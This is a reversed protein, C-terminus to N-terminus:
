VVIDSVANAMSLVYLLCLVYFIITATRPDKSPCQLYMAFIGSYVGLGLQLEKSLTRTLVCLLVYIKGFFFGELCCNITSWDSLYFIFM